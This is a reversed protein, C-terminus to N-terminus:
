LPRSVKFTSTASRSSSASLGSPWFTASRRESSWGTRLPSSPVETRVINLYLVLWVWHTGPKARQTPINDTMIAYHYFHHYLPDKVKRKLNYSTIGTPHTNSSPDQALTWGSIYRNCESLHWLALSVLFSLTCKRKQTHLMWPDHQPICVQQGLWSAPWCVLLYRTLTLVQCARNFSSILYKSYRSAPQVHQNKSRSLFCFVTFYHNATPM